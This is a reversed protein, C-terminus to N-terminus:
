TAAPAAGRRRSPRRRQTKCSPQSRKSSVGTSPCADRIVGPQCQRQTASTARATSRQHSPASHARVMSTRRACAAGCPECALTTAVPVSPAPRASADMRACPLEASHLSRAHLAGAAVRPLLTSKRLKVRARQVAPAPRPAQMNRHMCPPASGAARGSEVHQRQLRPIRAGCARVSAVHLRPNQEAQEPRSSVSSRGLPRAACVRRPVGGPQPWSDQGSKQRRAQSRDICASPTPPQGSVVRPSAVRPNESAVRNVRRRRPLSKM